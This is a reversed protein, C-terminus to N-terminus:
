LNKDWRAFIDQLFALIRRCVKDFYEGAKDQDFNLFGEGENYIITPAPNPIVYAGPNFMYIEDDSYGEQKLLDPRVAMLAATEDLAAHGGRQGYVEKVVEAAVEWWHIVAIKVGTGTSVNFAAEKLASNNGGHGNMVVIKDFGWNSISILLDTMYDRFTEEGVTLSGPYDMLTRTIGYPVLPAVIANLDDAIRECIGLPVSNDTGLNTFGHAEITGVPLFCTNYEGPVLKEFEKWNLDEWRIM